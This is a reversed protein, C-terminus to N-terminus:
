CNTQLSLVDEVIVVQEIGSTDRGAYIKAFWTYGEISYLKFLKIGYKHAKTPIYQRFILRGRWPVMTEDIVIDLGPSFIKQCNDIM